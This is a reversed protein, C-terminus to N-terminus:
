LRTYVSMTKQVLPRRNKPQRLSPLNPISITAWQPKFKDLRACVVTMDDRIAGGAMRVSTELLLDAIVQPDRSDLREIQHKIWSPPDLRHAVAELVGDSMLVLIDEEALTVKCTQIDIENLIGIPLGEGEIEIARRGRKIFTSVSGVKLLNMHLTYLDILALDLTAYMEEPSRLVLASNVTKIAVNEDFGARLLQEILDIAAGSEEHARQGNGMGDSLAIAFRGNGVDIARFSDGSQVKGDKAASAFGATVEYRKASSLTVMQYSGDAARDVKQVTLTEGLLESLLPAVLKGCEDHGTPHIQLVEIEVQGEELSIIELGQVELGLGGIAEIIQVEQRSSVCSERAISTALDIMIESVGSLQAAVLGRSERLQQVVALERSLFSNSHRLSALLLDQKICRVSMEFPIDTVVMDAHMQLHDLTSKMAAYTPGFNEAWCKEHKRCNRCLDQVTLEIVQNDVSDLDSTGQNPERFSQALRSFLGALEGMRTTMLEKIRRAHQQQGDQFSHTGPIFSAVYNMWKTPLALFLIVAIVTEMGVRMFDVSHVQYLSLAITGLVYGALVAWRKGERFLGALVGAFGLVGIMPMFSLDGLALIVGTVIGVTGGTGAGGVAAFLVVLFRAFVDELPIGYLTLGHLGTLVSTLLIIWAIVEEYRLNKHLKAAALLAPQQLFMLSLLFALVGDVMALALAYWTPGSFGLLYGVRFGADVVFVVFPIVHVDVPDIRNLLYIVLKYSLLIAALLLPNTGQSIATISGILLGVGMWIGAGRRMQLSAAFAALAFPTLSNLLIARGLLTGVVLVTVMFGLRGLMGRTGETKPASLVGGKTAKSGARAAVLHMAHHGSGRRRPGSNHDANM